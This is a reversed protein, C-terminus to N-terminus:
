HQKSTWDEFKTLLFQFIEWPHTLCRLIQVKCNPVFYMPQLPIKHEGIQLEGEVEGPSPKWLDIYYEGRASEPQSMTIEVEDGKTIFVVPTVSVTPLNEPDRAYLVIRHPNRGVMAFSRSQVVVSKELSFTGTNSEPLFLDPNSEILQSLSATALHWPRILWNKQDPDISQMEVGFSEFKVYQPLMLKEPKPFSFMMRDPYFRLTVVGEDGEYVVTTEDASYSILPEAINKRSSLAIGNPKSYQENRVSGYVQELQSRSLGKTFEDKTREKEQFSRSADVVYPVVWYANETQTKGEFFPDVWENAYIRLDTMKVDAKSFWLRVRYSGTTIWVAHADNTSTQRSAVVAIKGNPLAPWVESGFSKANIVRTKGSMNKEHVIQLQKKYEDLHQPIMSNEIGLVAFGYPYSSLADEYVKRFYETDLSALGYDNPQSTHISTLDGYTRLPDMVTQRIITIGSSQDESMAPIIPWKESSMYPANMPGGYLTYSDIGWQERTLQHVQVKYQDHLYKISWADVMWAGTTKPYYGFRAYFAAMYAQILKKRDNQSYGVLMSASAKYWRDATGNYKVGAKEALAPTIELFGGLEIQSNRVVTSFIPFSLADYRILFTAPLDLSGVAQVLLEANENTSANCCEFGRIQHVLLTYSSQEAQVVPPKFFGFLLLGFFCAFFFHSQKKM